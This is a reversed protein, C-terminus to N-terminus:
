RWGVLAALRDLLSPQSKVASAEELIDLCASLSPAVGVGLKRASTVTVPDDDPVIL